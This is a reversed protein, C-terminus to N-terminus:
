GVCQHRRRAHRGLAPRAPRDVVHVRVRGSLAHAGPPDPLIREVEHSALDLRNLGNKTGIWLSGPPGGDIITVRQDTLGEVSASSVTPKASLDLAWLGDFGGVWLVNDEFHLTWVAASPDHEPRLCACWATLSNTRAICVRSRASMFTAPRGACSRM